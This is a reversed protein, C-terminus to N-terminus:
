VSVGFNKLDCSIKNTSATYTWAPVNIIEVMFGPSSSDVNM